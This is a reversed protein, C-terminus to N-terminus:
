NPPYKNFKLKKSARPKNNNNNNNNKNKNKFFKLHLPSRSKTLPSVKRKCGEKQKPTTIANVNNNLTTIAIVNTNLTTIANALTNLPNQPPTLTPLGGDQYQSPLTLGAPSQANNETGSGLGLGLLASVDSSRISNSM